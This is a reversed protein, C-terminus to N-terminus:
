KDTVKCEIAVNLLNESLEFEKSLYVMVPNSMGVKMFETLSAPMTASFLLTQRGNLPSKCQKVVEQMQNLFGEEILRDAEDFILMEVRKLSFKDGLELIHHIVRGPTGIIIDPNQSIDEYQKEISQGGVILSMKIDSGKILKQIYKFTQIALDRTPSLILGRVGVQESHSKLKQILPVVFALTKGSGTKSM